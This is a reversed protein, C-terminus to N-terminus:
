QSFLGRNRTVPSNKHISSGGTCFDWRGIWRALIEIQCHRSYTIGGSPVAFAHLTEEEGFKSWFTSKLHEAPLRIKTEVLKRERFSIAFAAGSFHQKSIIGKEIQSVKEPTFQENWARTMQFFKDKRSEDSFHDYVSGKLPPIGNYGGEGVRKFNFDLRYGIVVFRWSQLHLPLYVVGLLMVPVLKGWLSSQKLFTAQHLPSSGSIIFSLAIDQLFRALYWICVEMIDMKTVPNDCRDLRERNPNSRLSCYIGALIALKTGCFQEPSSSLKYGMTGYFNQIVLNGMPNEWIEVLFPPLFCWDWGFFDRRFFFWGFFVVRSNLPFTDGPTTDRKKDGGFFRTLHKWFYPYGLISPKYYFGRNFHIIQPSCGSNESVGQQFVLLSSKFVVRLSYSLYHLGWHNM